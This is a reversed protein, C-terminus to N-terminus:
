PSGAIASTINAFDFHLSAHREIAEHLTAVEHSTRRVNLRDLIPDSLAAFVRYYLM